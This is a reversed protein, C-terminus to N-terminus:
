YQELQTDFKYKDKYYALMEGVNKFGGNRAAQRIEPDSRLMKRLETDIDKFFLDNSAMAVHNQNFDLHYRRELTQFLESQCANEPPKRHAVPLYCKEIYAQKMEVIMQDIAPINHDSDHNAIEVSPKKVSACGMIITASIALTALISLKM